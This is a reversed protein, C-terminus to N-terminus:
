HPHDPRRSLCQPFGVHRTFKFNMQMEFPSNLFLKGYLQAMCIRQRVEESLIIKGEIKERVSRGEGKTEIGTTDSNDDGPENGTRSTSDVIEGLGVRLIEDLVLRSSKWNHTGFLVAIRPTPSPTIKEEEIKTSGLVGSQLQIRARVVDRAVEAVLVRVCNDYAADTSEKNPYTPLNEDPSISKIAETNVVESELKSAHALVEADIYAGRVLKIGLSYDNDRAHKTLFDLFAPTRVLYAQLTTYVLPQNATGEINSRGELSNFEQMLVVSFLDIAPQFWTEEADIMLRVGRAQARTCIKRLTTHLTRLSQIHQAINTDVQDDPQLFRQLNRPDPAGPFPIQATTHSQSQPDQHIIWDSLVRLANPGPLLTSLKFTIWTARTETSNHNLCSSTSLNEEFDAAFDISHLISELARQSSDLSPESSVHPQEVSYAILAGQNSKRLKHLLPICADL